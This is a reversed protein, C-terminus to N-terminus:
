SYKRVPQFFPRTHSSVFDWAPPVTKYALTPSLLSPVGQFTTLGNEVGAGQSAMLYSSVSIAM